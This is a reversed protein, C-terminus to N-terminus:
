TLQQAAQQALRHEWAVPRKPDLAAIMGPATIPIAPMTWTQMDIQPAKAHCRILLCVHLERTCQLVSSIALASRSIPPLLSLQHKISSYPELSANVPM